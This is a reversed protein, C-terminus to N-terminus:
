SEGMISKLQTMASSFDMKSMVQQFTKAQTLDMARSETIRWRKLCYDRKQDNTWELRPSESATEADDDAQGIGLAAALSYRRAYTIASGLGQMDQRQLVLPCSGCIKEGNAHLLSTELAMGNLTQTFALGHKPLVRRAEKLVSELSAYRNRYHPNEADLTANQIEVQVAALATAINKHSADM